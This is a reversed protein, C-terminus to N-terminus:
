AKALDIGIHKADIVLSTRTEGDEGKYEEQSLQGKVIVPDAKKIKESVNKALSRFTKVTFWMTKDDKWENKKANFFSGTHALRFTSFDAGENSKAEYFGPDTGVYGSVSVEVSM